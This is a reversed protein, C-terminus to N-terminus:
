PFRFARYYTPKTRFIYAQRIVDENANIERLLVSLERELVDEVTMGAPLKATPTTFCAFCQAYGALRGARELDIHFKNKKLIGDGHFDKGLMALATDCHLDFVPINM